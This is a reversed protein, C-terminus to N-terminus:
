IGQHIFVAHLRYAIETLDEYQARIRQQLQDITERSGLLIPNLDNWRDDYYLSLMSVKLPKGQQIRRM